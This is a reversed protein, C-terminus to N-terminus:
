NGRKAKVTEGIQLQRDRIRISVSEGEVSGPPIWEFAVGGEEADKPRYGQPLNLRYYEIVKAPADSTKFFWSQSTYTVPGGIENMSNGGMVRILKAGPYVPISTAYVAGKMPSEKPSLGASKSGGVRGAVLLGGLGILAAYLGRQTWSM